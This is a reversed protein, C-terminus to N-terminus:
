NKGLEDFWMQSATEQVYENDSELLWRTYDNARYLNCVETYFESWSNCTEAFDLAENYVHEEQEMALEKARGM